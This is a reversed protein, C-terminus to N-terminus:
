HTDKYRQSFTTTIDKDTNVIDKLDDESNLLVAPIVTKTLKELHRSWGAQLKLFFEENVPELNPRNLGAWVLTDLNTLKAKGPYNVTFFIVANIGSHTNMMSRSLIHYMHEPDVALNGDNAILLVGKYNEKNLKTKTDKIQKNAKDIRKKIPKAYLRLIEKSCEQPLNSVTARWGNKTIKINYGRNRWKQCIKVIKKNLEKDNLKNDQLCKLEAIIGDKDFLYDANSFNPSPGVIEDVRQGGVDPVFKDFEKEINILEM